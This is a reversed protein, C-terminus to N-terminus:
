AESVESYIIKKSQIPYISATMLISSGLHYLPLSDAQCHLFCLLCQHLGQTPGRSSSIAVWQLIRAQFIRLISSGLLSCNMPNLLMLSSQACMVM